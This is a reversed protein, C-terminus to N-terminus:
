RRQGPEVFMTRYDVFEMAFQGISGERNKALYFITKPEDYKPRHLLLVVDADQETSGSDRLDTLRPLANEGRGEVERNLQALLVITIGLDLAALKLARTISGLEIARNNARAATNTIQGLYDVFAVEINHQTRHLAIAGIVAPLDSAFRANFHIPLEALVARAETISQLNAAYYPEDNAARSINVSVVQGVMRRSVQENTMELSLFSVPHKNRAIRYAWQGALASKGIGTRAGIVVLQGPHLGGTRNDYTAIGTNIGRARLGDPEDQWRHMLGSISVTDHAATPMSRIGETARSIRADESLAPDFADRGIRQALAFGRRRNSYHKVIEAYYCAHVATPTSEILESVISEGGVFALASMDATAPMRRLQEVVPILDAPIRKNWLTLIATYIMGHAPLYFDDAVLLPAVLAIVDRDLLCSGLVAQEAAHNYTEHPEPQTVAAPNTNPNDQM